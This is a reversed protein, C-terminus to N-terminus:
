NVVTHLVIIKIELYNISQFAKPSLYFDLTRVDDFVVNKIFYINLFVNEIHILKCADLNFLDNNYIDVVTLYFNFNLRSRCDIFNAERAM